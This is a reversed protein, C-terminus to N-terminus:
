RSALKSLTMGAAATGAEQLCKNLKEALMGVGPEHFMAEHDGPLELSELGAQIFPKWGLHPDYYRGLENRTVQSIFVVGRSDYPHPEYARSADVELNGFRQLEAGPDAPRGAFPLFRRWNGRRDKKLTQIGKWAYRLLEVPRMLLIKKIRFLWVRYIFYCRASIGKLGMFQRRYEPCLGDFIALLAVEEGRSRLKQAMDYAIVGSMCWGALCYPGHPQAHCLAELLNAAIDQLTFKEPLASWEPSTLGFIPQDSGLRAALSRYIPPQSTVIFLPTKSGKPQIAHVQESPVCGSEDQLRKAFSEITPYKFFAALSMKRRFTREIQALLRAALLSHGGEDFFNSTVSIAKAGLVQQWLEALRSEMQNRPAVYESPSELGAHELKGLARRDVKGNPTLPLQELYMFSAPV